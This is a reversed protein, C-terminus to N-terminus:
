GARDSAARRGPDVARRDGDDRTSRLVGLHMIQDNLDDLRASSETWSPSGRIEGSRNRAERQQAHLLAILRGTETRNM